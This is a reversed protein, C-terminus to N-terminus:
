MEMRAFGAAPLEKLKARPAEYRHVGTTRM